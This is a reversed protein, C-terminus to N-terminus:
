NQAMLLLLLWLIPKVAILYYESWLGDSEGNMGTLIHIMLVKRAPRRCMVHQGSVFSCNVSQLTPFQHGDSGIHTHIAHADSSYLDDVVLENPLYSKWKQSITQVQINTIGLKMRWKPLFIELGTSEKKCKEAKSTGM